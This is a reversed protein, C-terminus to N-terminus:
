TTWPRYKQQQHHAMKHGWIHLWQVYILTSCLWKFDILNCVSQVSFNSWSKRTNKATVIWYKFSIWHLKSCRKITAKPIIKPTNFRHGTSSQIFKASQHLVRHTKSNGLPIDRIQHRIYFCQHDTQSVRKATQQTKHVNTLVAIRERYLLFQIIFMLNIENVLSSNIKIELFWM